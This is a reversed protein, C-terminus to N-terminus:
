GGDDREQQMRELYAQKFELHADYGNVAALTTAILLIVAIVRRAGRGFITGVGACVMALAHAFFGASPNMVVFGLIILFGSVTVLTTVSAPKMWAQQESEGPQDEGQLDPDEDSDSM